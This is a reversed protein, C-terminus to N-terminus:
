LFGRQDLATYKRLFNDNVGRTDIICNSSNEITHYDFCDHDTLILMLDFSALIEPELSEVNSYKKLTDGEADPSLYPDCYSVQAEYHLLWEMIEIAPSERLDNVTKKYAVGLALIKSGSITLKRTNLIEFVRSIVWRPMAKNVEGSLEIFKTEVGFQRAKWTLYFPDVPIGHGGIGPGPLFPTFVFPKTSALDIIHYIDLAMAQAVTKLENVMGINVSRFINELLKAMEAAKISRAPVTKEICLSYLKVGEQLCQSTLGAVIKPINRTTWRPNSPDEREPSYVLFIDKGIKFGLSEIPLKFEEETTGPYTTSESSVVQGARLYPLIDKIFSRVLSLDPTRFATLPTPLCIIIAKCKALRRYSKDVIFGVKRADAIASNPIHSIPSVGGNLMNVRGENTDVGLVRAGHASFTLALPIGVYGM